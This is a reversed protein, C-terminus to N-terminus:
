IFGHTQHSAPSTGFVHQQLHQAVEVHPVGISAQLAQSCEDGSSTHLAVVVGSGVVVVGAGVVVFDVMVVVVVVVVVVVFVDFIDGSGLPLVVVTGGVDVVGGNTFGGVVDLDKWDCSSSNAVIDSIDVSSRPESPYVKLSM